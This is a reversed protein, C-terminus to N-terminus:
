INQKSLEGNNAGPVRRPDSKTRAKRKYPKTKDKGIWKEEIM